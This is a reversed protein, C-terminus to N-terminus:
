TKEKLQDLYKQIEEPKFMSFIEEPTLGKLREKPEYMSLVKEPTLGKVREKPEFRSLVEEPPLTSLLHDGFIRGMEEVKEPTLEIDM